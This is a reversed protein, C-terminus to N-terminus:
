LIEYNPVEVLIYRTEPKPLNGLMKSVDFAKQDAKLSAVAELGDGRDPFCAILNFAGVKGHDTRSVSYLLYKM